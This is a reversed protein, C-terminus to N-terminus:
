RGVAWLDLRVPIMDDVTVLINKPVHIDFDPMHVNFQSTVHIRNDPLLVVRTPLIMRKTVGHLTFDGTIKLDVPQNPAIVDPAAVSVSKFTAAPFKPTQLYRNRMESNRLSIGTDLSALDISVEV